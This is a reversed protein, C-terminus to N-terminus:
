YTIKNFFYIKFFMFFNGFAYNHNSMFFINLQIALRQVKKHQYM